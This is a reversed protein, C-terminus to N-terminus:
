KKGRLLGLTLFLAFPVSNILPGALARAGRVDFWHALAHLAWSATMAWHFPRSLEYHRAFWLTILGAFVLISGYEQIIHLTNLDGHAVRLAVARAAGPLLGTDLLMVGAGVLLFLAGFLVYVAKVVPKVNV